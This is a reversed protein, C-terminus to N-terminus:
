SKKSRSRDLIHHSQRLKDVATRLAIYGELSSKGRLATATRLFGDSEKVLAAPDANRKRVPPTPDEDELSYTLSYLMSSFEAAEEAMWVKKWSDDSSRNISDIAIDLKTRAEDLAKGTKEELFRQEEVADM